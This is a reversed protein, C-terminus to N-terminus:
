RHPRRRLVGFYERAHRAVVPVQTKLTVKRQGWNSACRMQSVIHKVGEIVESRTKKEDMFWRATDRQWVRSEHAALDRRSGHWDTEEDLAIGDFISPRWEETQRLRKQAIRHESMRALAEESMGEYSHAEDYDGQPPSNRLPGGRRAQEDPSLDSWGPYWEQEPKEAAPDTM